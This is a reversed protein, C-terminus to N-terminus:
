VHRDGVGKREFLTETLVREGLGQMAYKDSPRRSDVLIAGVMLFLGCIMFFSWVSAHPRAVSLLTSSTAYFFFLERIWWFIVRMCRLSVTWFSDVMCILGVTSLSTLATQLCLWVIVMLPRTKFLAFYAQQVNEYELFHAGALVPIFVISALLNQMGLMLLPNKELQVLIAEQCVVNAAPVTLVLAYVAYLAPGTLMVGYGSWVCLCEAIESYSYFILWASGFMFATTAAPHGGFRVGFVKSRLAAATPVEMARTAAFVSLSMMQKPMMIGQLLFSSGIHTTVLVTWRINTLQRWAKAFGGGGGTLWTAVLWLSLFLVAMFFFQVFVLTLVYKTPQVENSLRDAVMRNWYDTITWAVVLVVTVVGSWIKGVSTQGVQAEMQPEKRLLPRSEADSDADHARNLGLM